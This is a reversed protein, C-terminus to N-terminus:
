YTTVNITIDTYISVCTYGAVISVTQIHIVSSAGTLWTM